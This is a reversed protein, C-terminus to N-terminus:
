GVPAADPPWIFNKLESSKMEDIIIYRYISLLLLVKAENRKDESSPYSILFLNNTGVTIIYM